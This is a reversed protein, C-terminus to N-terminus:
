GGEVDWGDFLALFWLLGHALVLFFRFLGFRCLLAFLLFDLAKDLVPADISVGHIIQFIDRSQMSKLLLQYGDVGLM